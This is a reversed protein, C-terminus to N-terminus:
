GVQPREAASVVAHFVARGPLHALRFRAPETEAARCSFGVFAVGFWYQAVWWWELFECGAGLFWWSGAAVAPCQVVGRLERRLVVVCGAAMARCQVLSRLERRLVVVCGSTVAPCEVLGRLGRGLVVVAVPPWWVASSWAGCGGGCPSWLFETRCVGSSPPCTGPRRLRATVGVLAQDQLENILHLDPRASPDLTRPQLRRLSLCTILAVDASAAFRQLGVSRYVVTAQPLPLQEGGRLSRGRGPHLPRPCARGADTSGRPAVPGGCRTLGSRSALIARRTSLLSM